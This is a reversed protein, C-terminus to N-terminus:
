PVLKYGLGRETIILDDCGPLGALKARLRNVHVDVTRTDGGAKYKWVQQLLEDRSFVYNPHQALWLLLEFETLTLDLLQEGACISHAEPDIVLSRVRLTTSREGKGYRRLVARIRASLEAPNFPKTVYDDAGVGFGKLKDEDTVHATLMIIPITALRNALGPDPDGRGSRLTRCLELGNAGPLGIDLLILDPPACRSALLASRASGAVTVTFGDASLNLETFEVILPDDEVLLVTPM